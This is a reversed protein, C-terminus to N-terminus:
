KKEEVINKRLILKFKVEWVMENSTKSKQTIEKIEWKESIDNPISGNSIFNNKDDIILLEREKRKKYDEDSENYIFALRKNMKFLYTLIKKMSNLVM